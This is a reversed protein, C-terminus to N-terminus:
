KGGKMVLTLIGNERFNPHNDLRAIEYLGMPIFGQAKENAAIKGFRQFTTVEAYDVGEVQDLAAYLQGLYVPQNFTYDDPHFFGRRGDPLDRNSLADLVAEKVHAQFHSAAVCVTIEIMLPVYSPPAIEIDYGALKFGGVFQKVDGRLEDTLEEQGKPDVAIFVTRWSGTWRFTAVAKSVQPHKETTRAYDDETVARFLEAHFARPALSKVQDLTEPDAGGCAPLPNRVEQIGLLQAAEGVIKVIAEAGVNGSSGNGIRYTAEMEALSVPKQGYVGDGFRIRDSGDDESEVVFHPDFPGSQLLDPEQSWTTRNECLTVSPQANRPDTAVQVSAPQTPDFPSCFSIGTRKLRPLAAGRDAAVTLDLPETLLTMGQDALVVNGRAVSVPQLSGDESRVVKLCLDFPLADAPAWEIELLKLPSAADTKLEPDKYLPDNSGYHPEGFVPDTTEGVSTLRVAHRHAPDADAHLGTDGSRWEEFLLVDGPKLVVQGIGNTQRLTARTSGAPLCCEENGWTYFHIESHASDLTVDHMTEFVVAGQNIAADLQNLDLVCHPFETETLLRTGPMNMGPMDKSPYPGKLTLGDAGSGERVQFAVWVRSNCGNHMPYDILKAHRRVSIRSRATELYSDNAVADQYYSLHDGAYSLLEVLAVGLDAEHREKWGPIRLSAFDLLAQRFSAYDKAMYDILPEDRPAAATGSKQQCDFDSPCGAKFSFQCRSFVVDVKDPCDIVLTYTSFDGRQDVIVELCSPSATVQVVSVVNIGRIRVGGEIRIKGVLDSAKPLHNEADGNLGNSIFYVRIHKQDENPDLIKPVEIYDIGTLGSRLLVERRATRNCIMAGDDGM